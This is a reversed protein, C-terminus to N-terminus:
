ALMFKDLYISINVLFLRHRSLKGATNKSEGAHKKVVDPDRRRRLMPANSFTITEIEKLKRMYSEPIYALDLSFTQFLM